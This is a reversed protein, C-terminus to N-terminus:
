YPFDVLFGINAHDYFKPCGLKRSIKGLKRLEPKKNQSMNLKCLNQPMCLNSGSRKAHIPHDDIWVFVPYGPQLAWGVMGHLKVMTKCVVGVKWHWLQVKANSSICIKWSLLETIYWPRPLINPWCIMMQFFIVSSRGRPFILLAPPEVEQGKWARTTLLSPAAPHM